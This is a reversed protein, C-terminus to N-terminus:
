VVFFPVFILPDRLRMLEYVVFEPNSGVYAKSSM